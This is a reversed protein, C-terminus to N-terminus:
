DKLLSELLSSTKQKYQLYYDGTGPGNFGTHVRKVEGDRGIFISTPFSVVENLMNFHKSALGKSASGGILFTFELDLKTKLRTVNRVYDDFSKGNEYSVAIIELGQSHYQDYLEKYYKSEDLCNPCWTGMIQIIVVKNKYDKNPFMLSDGNLKRLGFEVKRGEKLYTIEEPSVLEYNPNKTASWESEFHNGSLFHGYLSDGIIKAKFLFAHSGDFCSLMLSDTTVNGDLYRYDGTETLFTGSVTNGKQKFLGLAPYQFTTNPQFLVKWRGDILASKGKKKVNSFRSLNGRKATFPIKYGEGKAYNYFYGSLSEKTSKFVLESDFYPFHAHLSDDKLTTLDLLITEEGNIIHVRNKKVVINFPLNHTSNLQLKANWKGKKINTTQKDQSYSFLSFFFLFATFILKM